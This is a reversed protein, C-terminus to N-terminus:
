QNAKPRTIYSMIGLPLAGIVWITVLIGTGLTGAAAASDGSDSGAIGFMFAGIMLLMIANYALFLFHFISGVFGRKAEKLVFGCNPCKYSTDSVEKGCEPCNILAM